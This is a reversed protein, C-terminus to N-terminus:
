EKNAIKLGMTEMTKISNTWCSEIEEFSYFNITPKPKGLKKIKDMWLPNYKLISLERINLERLFDNLQNLHEKKSNLEPVSVYRIHVNPHESNLKKLNNLIIENSTGTLDKHRETDIIKLDYYILDIDMLTKILLDYSFVGCTQLTMHIKKKKCINVLDMFFKVQLTPEGGSFTVGGGTEKFFILDKELESLAQEPTYFNGIQVKTDQSNTEAMYEIDHRQSEPNQCWVCQLPCGKFFLVTRVGPGDHISSRQINFLLGNNGHNSEKTMAISPYTNLGM